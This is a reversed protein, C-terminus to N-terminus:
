LDRKCFITEKIPERKCFLGIIKLLRSITAVGYAKSDSWKARHASVMTSSAWNQGLEAFQPPLGWNGWNQLSPHCVGTQWSVIPMSRKGDKQILRYNM